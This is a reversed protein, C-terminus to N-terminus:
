QLAKSVEGHQGGGCVEKEKVEKLPTEGSPNGEEQGCRDSRERGRIEEARIKERSFPVVTNWVREGKEGPSGGRGHFDV